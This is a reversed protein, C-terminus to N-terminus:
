LALRFGAWSKCIATGFLLKIWNFSEALNPFNGSKPYQIQLIITERDGIFYAVM